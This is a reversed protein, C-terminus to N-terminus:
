RWSYIGLEDYAILLTFHAIVTIADLQQLILEM